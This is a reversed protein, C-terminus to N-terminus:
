ASIEKTVFRSKDSVEPTVCRVCGAYKLPVLPESLKRQRVSVAEINWPQNSPDILESGKRPGSTVDEWMATLCVWRTSVAQNRLARHMATSTSNAPSSNKFAYQLGRANEEQLVDIINVFSWQGLVELFTSMLQTLSDDESRKERLGCFGRCVAGEGECVTDQHGSPHGKFILDVNPIVHM